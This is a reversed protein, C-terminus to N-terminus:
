FCPSTTTSPCCMPSTPLWFNSPFWLTNRCFWSNTSIDDKLSFFNRSFRDINCFLLIIFVTYVAVRCVGRESCDCDAERCVGGESCDCDAERCVGGESCDCDAERWVGDSVVIM